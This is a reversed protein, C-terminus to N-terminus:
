QEGRPPPLTLRQRPPAVPQPPPAPQPGLALADEDMEVGRESADDVDSPSSPEAQGLEYQISECACRVLAAVAVETASDMPQAVLAQLQSMASALDGGLVLARGAQPPAKEGMPAASCAPAAPTFAAAARASGFALPHM